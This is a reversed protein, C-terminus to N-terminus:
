SRNYHGSCRTFLQRARSATRANPLAQLKTFLKRLGPIPTKRYNSPTPSACLQRHLPLSNPLPLPPPRPLPPLDACNSYPQYLHPVAVHQQPLHQPELQRYWPPPTRPCQPVQGLGIHTIQEQAQCLVLLKFESCPTHIDPSLANRGCGVMEPRRLLHMYHLTKRLPRGLLTTNYPQDHAPSFM